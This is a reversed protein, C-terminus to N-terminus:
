SMVRVLLLTQDDDQKGFADAQALVLEFIAPLPKDANEKLVKTLRELGFESGAANSVELIGDTAIAFLDGSGCTEMHTAFQTSPFMGVPFQEMSLRSTGGTDADYHLIPPHGAVAYEVRGNGDFRLCGLTAYMNSEKVAPLVRNLADIVSSMEREVLLATRIATKCMGMLIGAKLGHGSIDAVYAFAAGGFEVADVLDGGVQESPRSRGYVELYSTQLSVPPVLTSQMRYAINLENRARIHAAGESNIFMLFLYYGALMAFTIGMLDLVLSLERLRPPLKGWLPREMAAFYLVMIVLMLFWVLLNAATKWGPRLKSVVYAVGSAGFLAAVILGSFPAIPLLPRQTMVLAAMEM